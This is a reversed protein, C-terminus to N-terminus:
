PICLGWTAGERQGWPMAASPGRAGTHVCTLRSPGLHTAKGNTSLPDPPVFLDGASSKLDEDQAEGIPSAQNIARLTVLVSNLSRAGTM